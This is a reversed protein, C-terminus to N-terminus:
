AEFVAWKRAAGTEKNTSSRESIGSDPPVTSSCVLMGGEEALSSAQAAPRLRIGDAEITVELNDGPKLGFRDRIVKPVVIRSTQDLVINM